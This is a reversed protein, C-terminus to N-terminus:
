GDHDGIRFEAALSRSALRDDALSSYYDHTGARRMALAVVQGQPEPLSRLWSMTVGKQKFRNWHPEVEFFVVALDQALGDERNDLLTKLVAHAWALPVNAYNFDRRGWDASRLHELMTTAVGAATMPDDDTFREVQDVPLRAVDDLYLDADEEHEAAIQMVQAAVEDGNSVARDV